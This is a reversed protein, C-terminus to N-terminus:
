AAPLLIAATIGIQSSRCGARVVHLMGYLRDDRRGYSGIAV